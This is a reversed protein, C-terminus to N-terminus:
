NNEKYCDWCLPRGMSTSENDGCSHCVNEEYDYNKYRNWSSYCESCLPKDPDFDIEEECRICYGPEEDQYSKKYTRNKDRNEILCDTVLKAAQDLNSIILSNPIRLTYFGERLSHFTRQLDSLAQKSNHVHHKGDVEIHVKADPVSIDITKHGDNSELIAPVGLKKLAFYLTISTDTATTHKIIGHFWNQCSKCLPQGYKGTSYNFVAIDIKSECNLCDSRKNYYSM